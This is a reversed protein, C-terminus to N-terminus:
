NNVPVKCSEPLIFNSTTLYKFALMRFDDLHGQGYIVVAKKGRGRKKLQRATQVFAIESRCRDLLGIFKTMQDITIYDQYEAYPINRIVEETLWVWQPETGVIAPTSRHIFLRNLVADNKAFTRAREKDIPEIILRADHHNAIIPAVIGRDTGVEKIFDNWNIKRLTHSNETGILDYHNHNILNDISNQCHSTINVNENPDTGQSSHVMGIFDIKLGKVSDLFKIDSIMAPYEAKISDMLRAFHPVAQFVNFWKKLEETATAAPPFSAPSVAASDQNLSPPSHQPGSCSCILPLLAMIWITFSVKKM